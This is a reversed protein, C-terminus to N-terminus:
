KDTFMNFTRHTLLVRSVNLAKEILLSLSLVFGSVELYSGLSHSLKNTKSCTSHEVHSSCM